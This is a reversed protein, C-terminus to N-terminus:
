RQELCLNHTSTYGCNIIQAFIFVDFTKLQFNEHKTIISLNTTEVNRLVTPLSRQQTVVHSFESWTQFM